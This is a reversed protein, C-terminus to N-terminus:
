ATQEKAQPAAAIGLYEIEEDDRIPADPTWDFYRWPGRKDGFVQRVRFATPVRQALVLRLASELATQTEILRDACKPDDKNKWWEQDSIMHDSVMAMLGAVDVGAAARLIRAAERISRSGCVDNVADLEDALKTYQDTM